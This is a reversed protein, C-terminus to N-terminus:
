IKGMITSLTEGQCPVSTREKNLRMVNGLTSKLWIKMITGFMKISKSIRWAGNMSRKGLRSHRRLTRRVRRQSQKLTIASVNPKNHISSQADRWSIHQNIFLILFIRVQKLHIHLLLIVGSIVAMYIIPCNAMRHAHKPHINSQPSAM